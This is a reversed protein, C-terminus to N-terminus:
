YMNLILEESFPWMQCYHSTVAFLVTTLTMIRTVSYLVSVSIGAVKCCCPPRGWVSDFHRVATCHWNLKLDKGVTPCPQACLLGRSLWASDESRENLVLQIVESRWSRKFIARCKRTRRGVIGNSSLIFFFRKLSRLLNLPVANQQRPTLFCVLFVAMEELYFQTVPGRAASRGWTQFAVPELSLM